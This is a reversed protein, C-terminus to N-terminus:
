SYEQFKGMRKKSVEKKKKIGWMIKRCIKLTVTTAKIEIIEKFKDVSTRLLIKDIENYQATLTRHFVLSVKGTLEKKSIVLLMGELRLPLLKSLFLKRGM